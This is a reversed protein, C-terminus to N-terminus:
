ILVSFTCWRGCYSDNMQQLYSGTKKGAGNPASRNMFMKGHFGSNPIEVGNFTKVLEGFIALSRSAVNNYTATFIDQKNPVIIQFNIEMYARYSDIPIIDGIAIRLQPIATSFAEDTVLQFLINKEVNDNVEYPNTCIMNIKQTMSLNEKSLPIDEPKTYYLLKWVDENKKCLYDIINKTASLMPTFQNYIKEDCLSM